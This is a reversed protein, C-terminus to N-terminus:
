TPSAPFTIGTSSFSSAAPTNAGVVIQNTHNLFATSSDAWAATAGDYFCFATRWITTAAAGGPPDYTADDGDVFGTPQISGMILSGDGSGVSINLAYVPSVGLALVLAAIAFLRM